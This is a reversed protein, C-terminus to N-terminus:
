QHRKNGLLGAREVQIVAARGIVLIPFLNFPFKPESIDYICRKVFLLPRLRDYLENLSHLILHERIEKFVRFLLEIQILEVLDENLASLDFQESEQELQLVIEFKGGLEENLSKLKLSVFDTSQKEFLEEPLQPVRL